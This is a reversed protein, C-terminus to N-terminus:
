AWPSRLCSSALGSVVEAQPDLGALSCVPGHMVVCKCMARLEASGTPKPAGFVQAASRTRHADLRGSRSWTRKMLVAAVTLSQVAFSRGTATARHRQLRRPLRHDAERGSSD